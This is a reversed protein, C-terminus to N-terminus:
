PRPGCYVRFGGRRLVDGSGSRVIYNYSKKPLDSVLFKNIEHRKIPYRLLELGSPYYIEIRVNHHDDSDLTVYLYDQISDPWVTVYDNDVQNSSNLNQSVLDNTANDSLNEIASLNDLLLNGNTLVNDHAYYAEFALFKYSRTPRIVVEYRQWISYKVPTSTFLLQDLDCFADGGWVRLVVPNTFSATQRSVQSMSTYSQAQCLWIFFRYTKGKELPKSLTQGVREYTGDDRTVMGLYTEGQQAQEDVDFILGSGDQTDAPTNGPFGCDNWGKPPRASAPRDEFSPNEFVVYETQAQVLWPTLSLLILLTKIHHM